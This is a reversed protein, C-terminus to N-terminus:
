AVRLLNVTLPNGAARDWTVASAVAILVRGKGDAFSRVPFGQEVTVAAAILAAHEGGHAFASEQRLQFATVDFRQRQDLGNGPLELLLPVVRVLFTHRKEDLLSKAGRVRLALVVLQQLHVLCPASVGREGVGADHRVLQRLQAIGDGLSAVDVQRFALLRGVGDDRESRDGGGTM